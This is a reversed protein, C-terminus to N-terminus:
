EQVSLDAVARSWDRHSKLTAFEQPTALKMFNEYAAQAKRKEQNQLYALTLYGFILGRQTSNNLAKEFAKVAEKFRLEQYELKGLGFYGDPANGYKKNYQQFINRAEDINGANFYLNGLALLSQAQNPDVELVRLYLQEAQQYSGDETYFQAAKVYHTTGSVQDKMGWYADGLLSHAMPSNYRIKIAEKLSAVAHPFDSKALFTEGEKVYEEFGKKAPQPPAPKPILAIRVPVTKGSKLNVQKESDQYGEKKITLTHKGAPLENFIGNSGILQGDLFAEAGQPELNLSLSAYAPPSSVPQPEVRPAPRQALSPVKSLIEDATPSLTLIVSSIDGKTVEVVANGEVGDAEGKLHYSGPSLKPLVFLGTADSKATEGREVIRVTAGPMTAQTRGDLVLGAVGGPTSRSFSFLLGAALLLIVLPAIYLWINSDKGESKEKLVYIHDKFVLEEGSALHAGGVLHIHSGSFYAIGRSVATPPLQDALVPEATSPSSERVTMASARIRELKPKIPESARKVAVKPKDLDSLLAQREEASLYSKPGSKEIAAQLSAPEASHPDYNAEAALPTDSIALKDDDAATKAGGSPINKGTKDLGADTKQTDGQESPKQTKVKQTDDDLKVEAKEIAPGSGTLGVPVEKATAQCAQCYEKGEEPTTSGCSKCINM